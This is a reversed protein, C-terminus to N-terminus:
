HFMLFLFFVGTAATYITEPDSPYIYIYLSVDFIVLLRKQWCRALGNSRVDKQTSSPREM